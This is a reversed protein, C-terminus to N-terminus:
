KRRRISKRLQEMSVTGIEGRSYGARRSRILKKHSEPVPLDDAVASDWLEAAVKLRQRRTLRQLQPFDSLGMVVVNAAPEFGTM